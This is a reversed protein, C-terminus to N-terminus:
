TTTELTETVEKWVYEQYRVDKYSRHVKNYLYAKDKVFQILLEIDVQGKEIM